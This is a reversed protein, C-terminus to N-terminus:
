LLGRTESKTAGSGCASLGLVIVEILKGTLNEPLEAQSEGGFNFTHNINMGYQQRPTEVRLRWSDDIGNSIKIVVVMRSSMGCDHEGTVKIDLTNGNSGIDISIGITPGRKPDESACCSQWDQQYYKIWQGEQPLKEM